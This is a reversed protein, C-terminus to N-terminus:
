LETYKLRQIKPYCVPVCSIRCRIIALIGQTWGTRLKNVFLILLRRIYIIYYLPSMKRFYGFDKVEVIRQALRGTALMNWRLEYWICDTRGYRWLETRSLGQQISFRAIFIVPTIVSIPRWIKVGTTELLQIPPMSHISRVWSLSLHRARTVATIFGGPEM